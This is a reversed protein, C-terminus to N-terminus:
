RTLEELNRRNKSLLKDTEEVSFGLQIILQARMIIKLKQTIFYLSEMEAARGKINADYHTLYNRTDLVKQIFSKVAQADPM